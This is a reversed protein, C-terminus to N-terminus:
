RRASSLPKLLMLCAEALPRVSMAYLSAFQQAEYEKGPEPSFDRMQEAKQVLEDVVATQEATLSEKQATQLLSKVQEFVENVARLQRSLKIDYELRLGAEQLAIMTDAKLNAIVKDIPSTTEEDRRM